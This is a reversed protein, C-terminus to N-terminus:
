AMQLRPTPTSLVPCRSGAAMSRMAAATSRKESARFVQCVSVGMATRVHAVEAERSASLAASNLSRIAVNPMAGSTMGPLSSAARDNAPAVDAKGPSVTATASMPPPDVSIIAPMAPAVGACACENSMPHRRTVSRNKVCSGGVSSSHAIARAHIASSNAGYRSISFFLPSSEFRRIATAPVAVLTMEIRSCICTYSLLRTCPATAVHASMSASIPRMAGIVSASRWCITPRSGPRAGTMRAPSSIMRWSKSVAPSSEKVALSRSM